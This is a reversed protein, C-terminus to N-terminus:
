PPSGVLEFNGLWTESETLSECHRDHSGYEDAHDRKFKEFAQRSAWRDITLYRGPRDADRIFDTGLYGEGRRFLKAWEGDGGYLTEFEAISENKVLFEWITIFQSAAM